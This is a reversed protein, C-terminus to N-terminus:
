RINEIQKIMDSINEWRDIDILSTKHIFDLQVGLVTDLEDIKEQSADSANLISKLNKVIRRSDYANLRILKVFIDKINYTSEEIEKLWGLNVELDLRLVDIVRLFKIFEKNTLKEKDCAKLLRWKNKELSPLFIVDLKEKFINLIMDCEEKVSHCVLAIEKDGQIMYGCTMKDELGEFVGIGDITNSRINIISKDKKLIYEANRVVRFEDLDIDYAGNRDASTILNELSVVHGLYNSSYRLKLIDLFTDLFERFDAGLNHRGDLVALRGLSRACVAGTPDNFGVEKFFRDIKNQAYLIDIKSKELISILIDDYYKLKGSVVMTDVIEKNNM